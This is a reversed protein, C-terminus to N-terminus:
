WPQGHRADALPRRAQAAPACLKRAWHPRGGLARTRRTNDPTCVTHVTLIGLAGGWGCWWRWWKCVGGWICQMCIRRGDQMLHQQCGRVPQLGVGLQRRQCDVEGLIRPDGLHAARACRSHAACAHSGLEKRATGSCVRPQACVGPGHQSQVRAGAAGRHGRGGGAWGAWLVHRTGAPQLRQQLLAERRVVRQQPLHQAIHALVLARCHLELKDGVQWGDHSQEHHTAPAPTPPALAHACSRETLRTAAQGPQCCGTQHATSHSRKHAATDQLWGPSVGLGRM